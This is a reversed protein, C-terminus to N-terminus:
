TNYNEVWSKIHIFDMLGLTDTKPMQIDMIILDYQHTKLIELATEGDSAEAIESPKFLELLLGKVGSRVVNHDDVLLFRKM